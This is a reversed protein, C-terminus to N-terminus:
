RTRFAHRRKFIHILAKAYGAVSWVQLACVAATLLVSSVTWYPMQLWIVVAQIILMISTAIIVPWQVDFQLVTRSSLMRLILVLLNAITMAICAGVIGLAPILLWTIVVCCLAGWVTTTFLSKTKLTATYVTGYFSNLINFYFAVIMIPILTWAQYFQKQLLFSALFPSCAAIVTAVIAIGAHYMRFVTSFFQAINSKRYQQFSSLQWAQQFIGAATNLLGPIKQAAAFMGSAGVGIMGTIFFRNISSSMWWFLANPVMPISYVLMRKLFVVDRADFRLRFHRFMDGVFFFCLVGGMNGVILSYFYGLAGMNMHSIFVIACIATLLTTVVSSVPIVKVRNLARALMNFFYQLASLAYSTVFLWRYGDLGGFFPLCLLPSLVTVVVISFLVMVLGLSIYRDRNAKDDIAFRLVADSVSLTALPLIMSVVTASMDTVGFDATSMYATYLPTLFFAVLKTATQTFAFLGTNVLLDKYKGM